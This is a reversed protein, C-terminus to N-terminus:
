LRVPFTLDKPWVRVMCSCGRRGLCRVRFNYCEPHPWTRGVKGEERETGHLNNGIRKGVSAEKWIEVRDRTHGNGPAFCHKGLGRAQALSLKCRPHLDPPDPSGLVLTQSASALRLM